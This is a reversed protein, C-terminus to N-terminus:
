VREWFDLEDEIMTLPIESTAYADGFHTVDCIMNCDGGECDGALGCALALEWGACDLAGWANEDVVMGETAMPRASVENCGLELTVDQTEDDLMGSVDYAIRYEDHVGALSAASLTGSLGERLLLVTTGRTQSGDWGGVFRNEIEDTEPSGEEIDGGCGLPLALISAICIRIPSM